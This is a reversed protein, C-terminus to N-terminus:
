PRSLKHEVTIAGSLEGLRKATAVLAKVQEDRPKGQYNEIAMDIAMDLLAEGPKGKIEVPQTSLSKALVHAAVMYTHMAVMLPEPLEATLTNDAEAQAIAAHCTAVIAQDETMNAIAQFTALLGQITSDKM